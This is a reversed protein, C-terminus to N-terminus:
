QFSGELYVLEDISKKVPSEEIDGPYGVTMCITVNYRDPVNFRDRLGDPDFAGIWCTGLGLSVAALSLHDLAIALDVEAWKEDETLGIIFAGVDAIFAQNHCLPILERLTRKKTVLIFKWPQLNKGSPAARATKLLVDMDEKSIQEGTYNRVSTREEIAQLVDM